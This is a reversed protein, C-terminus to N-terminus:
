YNEAMQLQPERYKRSVVKLAQFSLSNLKAPYPNVLYIGM